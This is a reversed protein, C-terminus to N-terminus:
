DVRLALAMASPALFTADLDIATLVGSAPAIAFTSVTASGRNLVYLTRESPDIALALPNLGALFIARASLEGTSSDYLVGDSARVDFLEVRGSQTGGFAALYAFRGSPAVKVDLPENGTQTPQLVISATGTTADVDYTGAVNANSFTSYAREGGPSFAFSTPSGGTLGDPPVNALLGTFPDIAFVSISGQAPSRTARNVVYLFQGTPDATVATPTFGVADFALPSLTGNPGIAFTFLVNDAADSAVYLFRGSPEVGLASPPQGFLLEQVRAPQGQEDLAFTLVSEAGPSTNAVWLYRRFPDVALATPRSGAPVSGQTSLRGDGPDVALIQVNSADESTVYIASARARAPEDGAVFAIASPAQRTRLSEALALSGTQADIAYRTLTPADASILVLSEGDPAIRMARAPADLATSEAEPLAGTQPDLAYLQVRPGGEQEGASSLVYLFRGGRLLEMAGSLPACASAEAPELALTQPDLAFRQVLESGALTVYLNRGPLDFACAVPEAEPDLELESALFPLGSAPEVRWLTLKASARQVIALLGGDGSLALDIPDEDTDIAGGLPALQGSEPDIRFPRLGDIANVLAYLFRGSPHVALAYPGSGIPETDISALSGSAADVRFAALTNSTQNASYLFTGSPHAALVKPRAQFASQLFYGHHDLRGSAADVRFRQLSSEDEGAVYAYRPVGAVELRLATQASGFLARAIVIYTRAPSAASASGSITGNGADLVLGAPLAPTIEYSQVAGTATPVLPALEEGVRLFVFDAPYSIEFLMPIGDGEVDGPEAEETPTLGDVIGAGGSGGPACSVGLGLGGLALGLLLRDLFPSPAAPRTPSM